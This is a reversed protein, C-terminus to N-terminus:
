LDIVRLVLAEIKMNVPYHILLMSANDLIM